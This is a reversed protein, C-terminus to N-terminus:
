GPRRGARRRVRDTRRGVDHVEEALAEHDGTLHTRMQDLPGLLDAADDSGLGARLAAVARRGAATLGPATSVRVALERLEAAHRRAWDAVAREGARSDRAAQVRQEATLGRDQHPRMRLYRREAAQRSTVGLAPALASWSVGQARAAEILLPEWARLDELLAHLEGLAALVDDPPPAPAGARVGAVLDRLVDSAAEGARDM